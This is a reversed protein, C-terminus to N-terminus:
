DNKHEMILKKLEQIQEKCSCTRDRQQRHGMSDTQFVYNWLESIQKRTLEKPDQGNVEEKKSKSYDFYLKVLIIAFIGVPGLAAMLEVVHKSFIEM